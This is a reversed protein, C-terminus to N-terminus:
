RLKVPDTDSNLEFEARDHNHSRCLPVIYWSNDISDVKKVHAGDTADNTCYKVKCSKASKGSEKEYFDLWSEYGDPVNRNATRNVNKWKM